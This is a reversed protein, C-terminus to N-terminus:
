IRTSEPKEEESIEKGAKQMIKLANANQTMTLNPVATAVTSGFNVQQSGPTKNMLIQIDNIQLEDNDEYDM